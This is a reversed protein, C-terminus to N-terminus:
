TINLPNKEFTPWLHCLKYVAQFSNDCPISMIFMFAKKLHLYFQLELNCVNSVDHSSNDGLIYMHFMFAKKKWFYTLTVFLQYPLISTGNWYKLDTILKNYLNPNFVLTLTMLHVYNGCPFVYLMCFDYTCSTHYKLLSTPRYQLKSGVHKRSMGIFAPSSEHYRVTHVTRTFIDGM